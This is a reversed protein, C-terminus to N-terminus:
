AGTRIHRDQLRIGRFAGDVQQFLLSHIQDNGLAEFFAGKAGRLPHNTTAFSAGGNDSTFVILTREAIGNDILAKVIMGVADDIGRQVLRENYAGRDARTHVIADHRHGLDLKGVVDVGTEVLDDIAEKVAMGNAGLIIRGTIALVTIGPDLTRQQIDM